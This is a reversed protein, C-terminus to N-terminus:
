RRYDVWRNDLHNKTNHPIFFSLHFFHTHTGEENVFVVIFIVAIFPRKLRHKKKNPENTSGNCCFWTYLYFLTLFFRLCCIVCGQITRSRKSRMGSVTGDAEKPAWNINIFHPLLVLSISHLSHGIKLKFFSLTRGSVKRKKTQFHARKGKMIPEPNITGQESVM